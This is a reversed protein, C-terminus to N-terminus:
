GNVAQEDEQFLAWGTATNSSDVALILPAGSEYDINTLIPHESAAKQIKRMAATAKDNWRFRGSLLKRLPEYIKASDPIFPRLYNALGLFGRLFSVNSPPCPWEDLKAVKEQDPHRGEKGIIVGTM